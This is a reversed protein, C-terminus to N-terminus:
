KADYLRAEKVGHVGNLKRRVADVRVYAIVKFPVTASRLKDCM